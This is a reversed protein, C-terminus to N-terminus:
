HKNARASRRLSLFTLGSFKTQSNRVFAKTKYRKSTRRQISEEGASNGGFWGGLAATPLVDQHLRQERGPFKIHESLPLLRRGRYLHSLENRARLLFSRQTSSYFRFRCAAGALTRARGSKCAAAEAASEELMRNIFSDILQHHKPLKWFTAPESTEWGQPARYCSTAATFGHM